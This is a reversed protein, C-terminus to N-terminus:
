DVGTYTNMQQHSSLCPLCYKQFIRVTLFHCLTLLYHHCGMINCYIIDNYLVSSLSHSCVIFIGTMLTLTIRNFIVPPIKPICTCDFFVCMYVSMILEATYSGRESIGQDGSREEREGARWGPTLVMDLILTSIM